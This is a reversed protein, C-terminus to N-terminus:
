KPAAGCKGSASRETLSQDSPAANIWQYRSVGAVDEVTLVGSKVFTRLQNKIGTYLIPTTVGNRTFFIKGEIDRATFTVLGETPNRYKARLERKRKNAEKTLVASRKVSKKYDRAPAIEHKQGLTHIRGTTVPHLTPFLPLGEPKYWIEHLANM